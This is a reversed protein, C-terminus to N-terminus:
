RMGKLFPEAKARKRALSSLDPAYYMWRLLHRSERKAYRLLWIPRRGKREQVEIVGRRSTLRQVTSQIWDVFTRSASALSVYLRRYVYRENKATHHRDISVLVSGDGYICGRFFDAYYEDPIALRGLPLSKNPTLGITLLVKYFARDSWQVRGALHGHRSEFESVSVRLGLCRRLTKLQDLDKSVVSIHRGDRSLNGDTAILGIAYAVPPTWVFASAERLPMPGRPRAPIGFQRLRRATTTASCGLWAALELLTHREVVYLRRLIAPDLRVFRSPM